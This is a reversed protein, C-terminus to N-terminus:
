LILWFQPFGVVAISEEPCGSVGTNKGATAPSRQETTEGSLTSNRGKTVGGSSSTHELRTSEWGVTKSPSKQNNHDLLETSPASKEDKKERESFRGTVPTGNTSMEACKEVPTVLDSIERCEDTKPATTQTSIVPDCSKCAVVSIEGVVTAQQQVSTAAPGSTEQTATSDDKAKYLEHPFTIRSNLNRELTVQDRPSMAAILQYLREADNCEEEVHVLPEALVTTVPRIVQVHDVDDITMAQLRHETYSGFWPNYPLTTDAVNDASCSIGSPLPPREVTCACRAAQELPGVRIEILRSLIDDVYREERREGRWDYHPDYFGSLPPYLRRFRAREQLVCM